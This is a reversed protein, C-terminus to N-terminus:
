TKNMWDMPCCMPDAKIEIIQAFTTQGLALRMNEGHKILERRCFNGIKVAPQRM